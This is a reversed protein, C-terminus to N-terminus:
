ASFCYRETCRKVHLTYREARVSLEPITMGHKVGTSDPIFEHLISKISIHCYLDSNSHWVSEFFVDYRPKSATDCHLAYFTLM